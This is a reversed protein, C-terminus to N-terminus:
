SGEDQNPGEPEAPADSDQGAEIERYLWAKAYRWDRKVTIESVGLVEAVERVGLGGFYRLEVTRAHRENTEALKKLAGDLAILNVPDSVTVAHQDLLTVQRGGGRRQAKKRRAHDILVRRMAQAAIGFFHSRGQWKVRKQDVLRLYAEHVLATPQLTHSNRESRMYADAVAKLEEYVVRILSDAAREDGDNIANLLQTVDGPPSSAM